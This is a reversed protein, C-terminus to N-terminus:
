EAGESDALCADLWSRRFLSRRGDKACRLRDQSVLDYIRQRECRLYDAAEDVDMWPDADAVRAPEREALKEAVREALADAMAEFSSPFGIGLESPGDPPRSTM